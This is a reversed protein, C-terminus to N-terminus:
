RDFPRLSRAACACVLLLACAILPLFRFMDLRRRGRRGGAGLWLARAPARFACHDQRDEGVARGRRLLFDVILDAGRELMKAM